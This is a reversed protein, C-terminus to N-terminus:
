WTLVSSFLSANICIGLLDGVNSFQWSFSLDLLNRLFIDPNCGVAVVIWHGEFNCLNYNPLSFCCMLLVPLMELCFPFLASLSFGQQNQLYTMQSSYISRNTFQPQLTHRVPSNLICDEFLAFLPFDKFIGEDNCGSILQVLHLSKHPTDDKLNITGM